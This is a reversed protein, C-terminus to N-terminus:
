KIYPDESAKVLAKERRRLLSRRLFFVSYVFGYSQEHHVCLIVRDDVNQPHEHFHLKVVGGVRDECKYPIM